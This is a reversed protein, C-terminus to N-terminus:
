QTKKGEPVEFCVDEPAPRGTLALFFDATHLDRVSAGCLDTYCHRRWARRPAIKEYGVIRDARSMRAMLASRDTGTFDFCATWRGAVIRGWLKLNPRGPKYVLVEDVCAFAPGLQGSPGHLVLTMQALPHAERLAALAPATL